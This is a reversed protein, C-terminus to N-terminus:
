KRWRCLLSLSIQKNFACLADGKRLLGLLFASNRDQSISINEFSSSSFHSSNLCSFKSAPHGSPPCNESKFDGRPVPISSSWFGEGWLPQQPLPVVCWSGRWGSKADPVSSVPMGSWGAAGKFHKEECSDMLCKLSSVSLDWSPIWSRGLKNWAVNGKQFFARKSCLVHWSISKAPSKGSCFWVDFVQLAEQSSSFLPHRPTDCWTTGSLRSTQPCSYGQFLPLLVSDSFDRGGVQNQSSEVSM